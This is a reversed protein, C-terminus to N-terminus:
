AAGLMHLLLLSLGMLGLLALLAAVTARGGARLVTGFEVGLGLGAMGIITLVSAAEALPQVMWVPVLGMSRCALLGVFGMVFWPAYDLVRRPRYPGRPQGAPPPLYRPGLVGLCLCVPGLLLVRGLKVLTGMQVAVTGFPAAAAVVQPVAYVTLGAFAGYAAVSLGLMSGLVPLGLVMVVGLLATFAVAAAVDDEDAKIVPAVAVIASNGCISTGCAVLLAMHANLGLCRGIGYGLMIACAVVGVLGFLLPLGVRLLMTASVSAGLLMVGVELPYRASWDIGPRLHCISSRLCVRLGMGLLIALVLAELWVRGLLQGEVWALMSAGLAVGVCAVIGPLVSWLALRFQANNQVQLPAVLM